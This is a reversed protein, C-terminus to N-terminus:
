INIIVEISTINIMTDDLSLDWSWNGESLKLTYM